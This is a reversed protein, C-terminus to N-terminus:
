SRKALTYLLMSTLFLGKSPQSLAEADGILSSFCKPIPGQSMLSFSFSDVQLPVGVKRKKKKWEQISKYKEVKQFNVNEGM